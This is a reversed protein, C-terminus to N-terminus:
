EMTPSTSPTNGPGWRTVIIGCTTPVADILQYRKGVMEDDFIRTGSGAVGPNIYLQLEDVLYHRLLDSVFGAGGFCVLDGQIARKAELVSDVFGGKIITTNPWLTQPDHSTAVFKPLQGIRHAFRYDPDDGRASATRQWHDLYGEGIMRRSLLIGSASAFLENFHKRLDPSWPWQAGWNWLQWDATPIDSDVFGDISIQMQVILNAM